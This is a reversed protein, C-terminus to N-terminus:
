NANASDARPIGLSPGWSSSMGRTVVLLVVEKGGGAVEDLVEVVVM